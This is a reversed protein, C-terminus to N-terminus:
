FQIFYTSLELYMCYAISNIHLFRNVVMHIPPEIAMTRINADKVFQVELQGKVM